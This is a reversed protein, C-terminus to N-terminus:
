VFFIRINESFDCLVRIQLVVYTQCKEICAFSVFVKSSSIPKIM